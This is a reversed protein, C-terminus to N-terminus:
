AENGRLISLATRVEESAWAQILLHLLEEAEAVVCKM